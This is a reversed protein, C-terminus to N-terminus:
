GTESAIGPEGCADNARKGPSGAPVGQANLGLSEEWLAKSALVVFKLNTTAMEELADIIRQAGARVDAVSQTEGAAVLSNVHKMVATQLNGFETLEKRAQDRDTAPVVTLGVSINVLDRVVSFSTVRALETSIAVCVQVVVKKDLHDDPLDVAQVLEPLLGSVLRNRFYWSMNALRWLTAVGPNKPDSVLDIDSDMQSVVFHLRSSPESQLSECKRLRMRHRPAPGGDALPKGRLVIAPRPQGGMANLVTDAFLREYVSAFPLGDTLGSWTYSPDGVAKGFAEHWDGSGQFTAAEPLRGQELLRINAATAAVQLVFSPTAEFSRESVVRGAFLGELEAAITDLDTESLHLNIKDDIYLEKLLKRIGELNAQVANFARLSSNIQGPTRCFTILRRKPRNPAQPVAQFLGCEFLCFQWDDDPDTHIFILWDSTRIETEVRDRWKEGSRFMGAHVANVKGASHKRLRNAIAEALATDTPMKHSVFVKLDLTESLNDESTM